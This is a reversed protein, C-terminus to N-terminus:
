LTKLASTPNRNRDAIELGVRISPVVATAPTNFMPAVTIGMFRDTMSDFLGPRAEDRM